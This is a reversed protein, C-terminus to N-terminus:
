DILRDDSVTETEDSEDRSEKRTLRVKSSTRTADKEMQRKAREVAEALTRSRTKKGKGNEKGKM